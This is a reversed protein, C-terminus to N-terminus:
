ACSSDARIFRRNMAQVAVLVAAFQNLYPGLEQLTCVPQHCSLQTQIAALM